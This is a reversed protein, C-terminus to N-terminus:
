IYKEGKTKEKDMGKALGTPVLYNKLRFFRSTYGSKM